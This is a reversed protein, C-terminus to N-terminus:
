AAKAWEVGVAKLTNTIQVFHRQQHAILFRFTDGLRIKIFKSISIPVTIRTMNVGRAENILELLHRQGQIFESLVAIDKYGEVAVHDKPVKMTNTINGDKGPLMTNAFYNGLIGPKFSTEGLIKRGNAIAREINPLYYENYSNLHYVVQLVSWKGKSPCLSLTAANLSQLYLASKITEKVSHELTDLLKQSNYLTM